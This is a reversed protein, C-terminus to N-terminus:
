KKHPNYTDTRDAVKLGEIESGFVVKNMMQEESNSYLVVDKIVLKIVASIFTSMYRYNPREDKYPLFVNLEDADKAYFNKSYDFEGTHAAKHIAATVFIAANKPINETHVVAVHDDAGYKYNRYKASGFMDITTTNESFIEDSNSIYASIGEEAEGATVFPLNGKKRDASKLRKGRTSKGYLEELNYKKWDIFKFKNLAKEEEKSLEYNDLGSVKLYASLEAIREAKLEAIFDEMFAFDIKGESTQPLEIYDFKIKDWTCINEFGFKKNVFRFSSNIFLGQNQSIEFKPKLSFVRAHTVMKYDFGRYFSYGFMDVTITGSNFIKAGLDTKGLVGNNALGSTIVYTGRNNIHEKQIDVNGNSSTFLDYM